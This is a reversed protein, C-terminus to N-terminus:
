ACAICARICFSPLDPLRAVPSLDKRLWVELIGWSIDIRFSGKAAIHARNAAGYMKDVEKELM